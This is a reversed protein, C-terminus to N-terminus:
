IKFMARDAGSSDRDPHIKKFFSFIRAREKLKRKLQIFLLTKITYFTKILICSQM